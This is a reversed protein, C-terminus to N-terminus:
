PCVLSSELHIHADLFGPLIIKGSCDVEVKGSYNGMGVILGESMAIDAQCLANSFVNVYTANKLVLDALERGSAAEIVRRKRALDQVLCDNRLETM